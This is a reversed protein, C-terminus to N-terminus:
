KEKIPLYIDFESNKQDELDFRKDYLEFEFKDAVDYGSKPFWESYIYNYTQPLNSLEGKHTFMAYKHDPITRTVMGDPVDDFDSVEFCVVENFETDRSMNEITVDVNGSECIGYAIDPNVKNKIEQLRSMFDMWLQPIINNNLTFKREMGMVKFSVKTVIKPEM